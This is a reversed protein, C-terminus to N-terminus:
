VPAESHFHSSILHISVIFDPIHDDFIYTVTCLATNQKYCLSLWSENCTSGQGSCDPSWDLLGRVSFCKEESGPKVM